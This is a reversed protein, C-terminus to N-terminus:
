PGKAAYTKRLAAIGDAASRRAAAESSELLAAVDAYSLDALYRYVVAGRQKPPLAGLAAHLGDDGPDPPAGAAAVVDPVTGAPRPARGARRIQDIAKRHAITVLWGRVNSDPRLDPYARLASLFTESWADEADDPGLLARCVRLVVSGHEAVIEEFPRVSV